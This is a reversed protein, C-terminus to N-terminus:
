SLSAAGTGGLLRERNRLIAEVVLDTMPARGGGDFWDILQKRMRPDWFRRLHSAVGEVAVERDPEAAFFAGIRNAMDVLKAIEM